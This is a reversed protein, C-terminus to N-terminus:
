LGFIREVHSRPVRRAWVGFTEAFILPLELALEKPLDRGGNGLWRALLAYTPTSGGATASLGHRQFAEAVRQKWKARSNVACPCPGFCFHLTLSGRSSKRGCVCRRSSFDGTRTEPCPWYVGCMLALPALGAADCMLNRRVGKLWSRSPAMARFLRTSELGAMETAQWDAVDKAIVAKAKCTAARAQRRFGAPDNDDSDSSADSDSLTGGTGYKAEAKRLRSRADELAGSCSGSAFNSNAGVESALAAVVNKRWPM